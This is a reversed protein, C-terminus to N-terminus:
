WRRKLFLRGGIHGCKEIGNRIVYDQLMKNGKRSFDLSAFKKEEYFRALFAIWASGGGGIELISESREVLSEKKAFIDRTRRNKYGGFSVPKIGSRSVYSCDWYNKTTLNKGM